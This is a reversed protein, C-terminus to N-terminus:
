KSNLINQVTIFLTNYDDHLVNAVEDGTNNNFVKILYKCVGFEYLKFIYINYTNNSVRVSDGVFKSVSYNKNNFVKLVTQYM